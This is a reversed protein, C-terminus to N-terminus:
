RSFCATTLPPPPWMQTIFSPGSGTCIIVPDLFTFTFVLVYLCYQRIRSLVVETQFM